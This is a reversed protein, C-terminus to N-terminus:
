IVDADTSSCLISFGAASLIFIRGSDMWEWVCHHDAYRYLMSARFDGFFIECSGYCLCIRELAISIKLTWDSYSIREKGNYM